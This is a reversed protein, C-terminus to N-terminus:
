RFSYRVFLGYNEKFIKLPGYWDWNAGAGFAFSGFEPGIRIDIYSRDHHDEGLNYDYFIQLRTYLSLNDDIRPKFELM